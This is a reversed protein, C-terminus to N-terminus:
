ERDSASEFLFCENVEQFSALHKYPNSIEQIILNARLRRGLLYVFIM